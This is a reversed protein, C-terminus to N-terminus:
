TIHNNMRTRLSFAPVCRRVVREINPAGCFKPVASFNGFRFPKFRSFRKKEFFNTVHIPWLAFLLSQCLLACQTLFKYFLTEYLLFHREIWEQVNWKARVACCTSFAFVTLSCLFVAKLEALLHHIILFVSRRDCCLCWMILCFLKHVPFLKQETNMGLLKMKSKLVFLTSMPFRFCSSRFFYLYVRWNFSRTSKKMKLLRGSSLYSTLSGTKIGHMACM